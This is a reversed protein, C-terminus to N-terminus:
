IALMMILPYLILISQYSAKTSVTKSNHPTPISFHTFCRSIDNKGEFEQYISEWKERVIQRVIRLGIEEQVRTNSM